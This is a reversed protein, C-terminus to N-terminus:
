EDSKKELTSDAEKTAEFDLSASNVCFRMGTPKPGDDFLHGLHAGCNTCTIEIRRMGFSTDVEKKIKNDDIAGWFSPWGCGSDYKTNSKFLVTGCCICKYVGDEKSDFYKGTFPKETEKLRTVRYQEPTLIQQWDKDSKNSKDSMKLESKSPNNKDSSQKHETAKSENKLYFFTILLASALGILFIGNIKNFM